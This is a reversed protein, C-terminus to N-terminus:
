RVYANGEDQRTINRPQRERRVDRGHMHQEKGDNHGAPYRQPRNVPRGQGRKKRERRPEGLRWREGDNHRVRKKEHAEADLLPHLAFDVVLKRDQLEHLRNADDLEGDYEASCENTRVAEHLVRLEAVADDIGRPM